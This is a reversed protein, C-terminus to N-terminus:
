ADKCGPRLRVARITKSRRYADFVEAEVGEDFVMDVKRRTRPPEPTAGGTSTDSDQEREWQDGTIVEPMHHMSPPASECSM